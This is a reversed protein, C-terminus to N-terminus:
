LISGHPLFRNNSNARIWLLLDKEIRLGRSKLVKGLSIVPSKDGAECDPLKTEALTFFRILHIIQEVSYANVAPQWNDLGLQMLGSVVKQDEGPILMDIEELQDNESYQIFQMLWQQQIETPKAPKVEPSWTETSM